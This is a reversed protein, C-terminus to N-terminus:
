GISCKIGLLVWTVAAAFFAWFAGGVQGSILYVIAVPMLLIGTALM